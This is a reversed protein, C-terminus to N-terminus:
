TRAAIKSIELSKIVRDVTKWDHKTIQSIESKNKGPKWLSGITIHM